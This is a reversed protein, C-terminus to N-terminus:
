VTVQYPENIKPRWPEVPDYHLEVDIAEPAENAGELADAIRKLQEAIRDLKINTAWDM